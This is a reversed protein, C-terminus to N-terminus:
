IIALLTFFYLIMGFLFVKKFMSKFKEIEDIEVNEVQVTPELLVIGEEM